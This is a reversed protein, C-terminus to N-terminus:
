LLFSMDKTKLWLPLLFQQIIYIRVLKALFSIVVEVCLPSNLNTLPVKLVSKTRAFTFHTFVFNTVSKKCIVKWHHYLHYSFPICVKLKNKDIRIFMCRRGNKNFLGREGLYFKRIFLCPVVYMIAYKNRLFFRERNSLCQNKFHKPLWMYHLLISHLSLFM